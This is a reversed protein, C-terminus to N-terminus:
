GSIDLPTTGSEPDRVRRLEVPLPNLVIECAALTEAERLHGAWARFESDGLTIHAHVSPKGDLLSVNGILASIEYDGSFKKYHYAKKEWDFFGLEAGRCTGIGTFSAGKIGERACFATLAKIIREGKELRLFYRNEIKRFRM